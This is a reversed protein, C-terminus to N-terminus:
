QRILMSIVRAEVVLQEYSLFKTSAYPKGSLPNAKRYLTMDEDYEALQENLRALALLGQYSLPENPQDEPLLIEKLYRAEEIALGLTLPANCVPRKKHHAESISNLAEDHGLSSRSRARGSSSANSGLAHAPSDDFTRNEKLFEILSVYVELVERCTERFIYMAYLENESETKIDNDTFTDKYLTGDANKKVPTEDDESEDDEAFADANSHSNGGEVQNEQGHRMCMNGLRKLLKAKEHGLSALVRVLHMPLRSRGYANGSSSMPVLATESGGSDLRKLKDWLGHNENRLFCSYGSVITVELESACYTVYTRVVKAELNVAEKLCQITQAPLMPDPKENEKVTGLSGRRENMSKESPPPVLHVFKPHAMCYHLLQQDFPLRRKAAVREANAAKAESAAKVKNLKDMSKTRVRQAATSSPIPAPKPADESKPPATVDFSGFLSLLTTAPAESVAPASTQTPTAPQNDGLFSPAISTAKSSGDNGSGSNMNFANTLATITDTPFADMTSAWVCPLVSTRLVVSLRLLELLEEGRDDDYIYDHTVAQLEEAMSNLNILYSSIARGGGAGGISSGGRRTGSARKSNAALLSLGGSMSGGSFSGKMNSSRRARVSREADIITISGRQGLGNASASAQHNKRSDFGVHVINNIFQVFVGLVGCYIDNQVWEPRNISESVRQLSRQVRRELAEVIGLMSFKSEVVVGKGGVISGKESSTTSRKSNWAVSNHVGGEGMNGMSLTGTISSRGTRGGRTTEEHHAEALRREMDTMSKEFFSISRVSLRNMAREAICQEGQMSIAKLIQLPEFYPNRSSISGPLTVAGLFSGMGMGIGLINKNDGNSPSNAEASLIVSVLDEYTRGVEKMARILFPKNLEESYAPQASLYNSAHNRDRGGLITREHGFLMAKEKMGLEPQFLTDEERQDAHTTLSNYGKVTQNIAESVYLLAVSMMHTLPKVKSRQLISSTKRDISSEVAAGPRKKNNVANSVSKAFSPTLMAGGKGESQINLGALVLLGQSPAAGGEVGVTHSSHESSFARSRQRAGGGGESSRRTNEQSNATVDVVISHLCPIWLDLADLLRLLHMERLINGMICSDKAAADDDVIVQQALRKAENEDVSREAGETDSSNPSSESESSSDNNGKGEKGEGNVENNKVSLRKTTGGNTEEDEDEDDIDFCESFVGNRTDVVRNHGDVTTIIPARMESLLVEEDDSHAKDDDRDVGADSDESSDSPADEDGYHSSNTVSRAVSANSGASKGRDRSSFRKSAHRNEAYSSKAGFGVPSSQLSAAAWVFEGVMNVPVKYNSPRWRRAPCVRGASDDLQSLDVNPLKRRNIQARLKKREANLAAGHSAAENIDSLFRQLLRAVTSNFYQLQTAFCTRMHERYSDAGELLALVRVYRSLSLFSTNPQSIASMCRDRLELALKHCSQQVRQVVRLSSKTNIALVRAYIACCEELEGRQLCSRMTHPYELANSLRKIVQETSRMMRSRKMRDLIPALTSQAESKAADLSAQAQKLKLEGRQAGTPVADAGPLKSDKGKQGLANSATPNQQEPSKSVNGRRYEKLWELGEACHVFLGFNARVLAERHNEQKTLQLRLNMAGKKLEEFSANGHVLTLFLEPSFMKDDPLVSSIVDAGKANGNDLGGGYGGNESGDDDYDDDVTSQQSVRTRSTALSSRPMMSRGGRSHFGGGSSQHTSTGFQLAGAAHLEQTARLDLDTLGLPDKVTREEAIVEDETDDVPLGEGEQIPVPKFLDKDVLDLWTVPRNDTRAALKMQKQRLESVNKTLEEANTRSLYATFKDKCQPNNDILEDIDISDFNGDLDRHDRMLVSLLELAHEQSGGRSNNQDPLLIHKAFNVKQLESIPMCIYQDYFINDYLNEGNGQQQDNNADGMDMSVLWRILDIVPSSIRKLEGAHKSSSQGAYYFLGNALKGGGAGGIFLYEVDDDYLEPRMKDIYDKFKAVAKVRTSHSNDELDKLLVRIQSEAYGPTRQM